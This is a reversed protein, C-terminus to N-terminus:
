GRRPAAAAAAGRAKKASAAAAAAAHVKALELEAARALLREERAEAEVLPDHEAIAELPVGLARALSVRVTSYTLLRAAHLSRLTNMNRVGGFRARVGDPFAWTKKTEEAAALDAALQADKEAWTEYGPVDRPPAWWRDNPGEAARRRAAKFRRWSAASAASALAITGRVLAARLPPGFLAEYIENAILSMVRNVAAVSQAFTDSHLEADATVKTSASSLMARPVGMISSVLEQYAASRAVLDSVPTGVPLTRPELGEPLVITGALYEGATGLAAVPLTGVLDGWDPAGRAGGGADAEARAIDLAASRVKM